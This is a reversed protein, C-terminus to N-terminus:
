AARRKVVLQEMANKDNSGFLVAWALAETRQDSSMLQIHHKILTEPTEVPLGHATLWSDFAEVLAKDM